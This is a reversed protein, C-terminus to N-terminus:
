MALDLSEAFTKGDRDSITGYSDHVAAQKYIDKFGPFVTAIVSSPRAYLANLEKHWADPSMSKGGSVPPWGFAGDMGHDKSLHPLGYILPKSALSSRLMKWQEQQFQQPGFVLLTPRGEQKLYSADSFWHQEAWQLDITGQKVADDASLAKAKIMQAIAQDEYCIAFRLGAKKLWGIFKETHAHNAAYDLVNKTGYWDIIAGDLGAFKMLLAQCELADDDSSDYLGILPYEHSAARRQGEWKIQDPDFHDMTWHWGWKGSVAKTQYWPMYHALIVKDRARLPLVLTLSLLLTVIRPM